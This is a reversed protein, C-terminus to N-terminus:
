PGIELLEVRTPPLSVRLRLNGGAHVPEEGAAYLEGRRCAAVNGADRLDGGLRYRRLRRAGDPLGVLDLDLDMTRMEDHHYNWLLVRCVDEARSALAGVAESPREAALRQGEMAYLMRFAVYPALCEGAPAMMHLGRRSSNWVEGMRELPEARFWGRWKEPHLDMDMAHYYFSRDLGADIFRAVVDVLFASRLYEGPDMNTVPTINWEGLVTEASAFPEGLGALVKRTRGVTGAMLAADQNYVHWSFFDFPLGDARVRAALEAPLPSEFPLEAMAPGGVLASPDGRKVARATRAYYEAYEGPTFLSPVGGGEGLDPENGVEYWRVRYSGHAAFHRSLAAIFDEWRGWDSPLPRRPDMVPYLAPPKMCLSVMVDAGTRGVSELMRDVSEFRYQGPGAMMGFFEQLFVRIAPFGLARLREVVPASFPADDVGGQGLAHNRVRLDGAPSGCDIGLRLPSRGAGPRRAPKSREGM